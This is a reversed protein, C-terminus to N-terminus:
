YPSETQCSSQVAFWTLHQYVISSRWFTLGMREFDSIYETQSNSLLIEFRKRSKEATEPANIAAYRNGNEFIIYTENVAHVIREQLGMWIGFQPRFLERFGDFMREMISLLLEVVRRVVQKVVAKVEIMENLIRQIGLSIQNVTVNIKDKVTQKMLKLLGIDMEKAIASILEPVQKSNLWDSLIDKIESITSTIDEKVVSFLSMIDKSKIVKLVDEKILKMKNIFEEHAFMENNTSRHEANMELLNGTDFSSMNKHSDESYERIHNYLERGTVNQGNMNKIVLHCSSLLQETFEKLHMKFCDNLDAQRGDFGEKERVNTGPDPMLFCTIENYSNWLYQRIEQSRKSQSDNVKLKDNCLREGGSSGYRYMLPSNWDRVLFSLKQFYLDQAKAYSSFVQLNNLDSENIRGMLNYVMVSSLQQTLAFILNEEGVMASSDWAGQSDVLFVAVKGTSTNVIFPESWINIGKTLGDESQAHQFGRLPENEGGMWGDCGTKHDFKVKCCNLILNKSYTNQPGSGSLARIKQDFIKGRCFAKRKKIVYFMKGGLCLVAGDM